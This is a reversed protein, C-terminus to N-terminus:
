RPPGVLRRWADDLSGERVRSARVMLRHARCLALVAEVTTGGLDAELGAPTVRLGPPPEAPRRELVLELVPGGVIRGLAGDAILRGRDLLLVRTALREVAGPDRSAVLVAAGGRALSQLTAVTAARGPADLAAFPEDVLVVRRAGLVAQALSLRTLGGPALGAVRREAVPGLGALEVARAVLRRRGPGADHLRAYYDLVERVRLAPPFSAGDPAFGLVRRAAVTGPAHGGVRVRGAHLRLGGALIRLLTTKGSAHPGALAAVEGAIVDFSVADLVSATGGRGRRTVGAAVLLPESV